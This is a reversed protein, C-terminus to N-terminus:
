ITSELTTVFDEKLVEMETKGKCEYKDFDEIDHIQSNKENQTKEVRVGACM